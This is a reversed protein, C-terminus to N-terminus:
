ILEEDTCQRKAVSLPLGPERERNFCVVSESRGEKWAVTGASVLEDAADPGVGRPHGLAVKDQFSALVPFERGDVLHVVYHAHVVGDL